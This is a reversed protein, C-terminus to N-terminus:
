RLLEKLFVRYHEALITVSSLALEAKLKRQLAKLGEEFEASTASIQQAIFDGREQLDGRIDRMYGGM